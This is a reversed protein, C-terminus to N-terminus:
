LAGGEVMTSVGTVRSLALYGHGSPLVDYVGAGGVEVAVRGPQGSFRACAVAARAPSLYRDDSYAQWARWEPSGEIRCVQWVTRDDAAKEM